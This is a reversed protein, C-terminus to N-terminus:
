QKGVTNSYIFNSKIQDSKIPKVGLDQPISPCQSAPVSTISASNWSIRSESFRNSLSLVMRTRKKPMDSCFMVHYMSFIYGLIVVPLRHLYIPFIISRVVCFSYKPAMIEHDHFICSKTVTQCSLLVM